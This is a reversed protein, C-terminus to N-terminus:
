QGEIIQKRADDFNSLTGDQKTLRKLTELPGVANIVEGPNSQAGLSSVRNELVHRFSSAQHQNVDQTDFSGDVLENKIKSWTQLERVRDHAIQIM